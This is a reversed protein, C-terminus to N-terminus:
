PGYQSLGVWRYYHEFVHILDLSHLFQLPEALQLLLQERQHEALLERPGPGQLQPDMVVSM